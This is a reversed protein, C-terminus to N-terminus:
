NSHKVITQLMFSPLRTDTNISSPIVLGVTSASRTYVKDVNLKTKGSIFKKNKNDEPELSSRFVDRHRSFAQFIVDYSM